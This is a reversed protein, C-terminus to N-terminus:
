AGRRIRAFRLFWVPTTALGFVIAGAILGSLVPMEFPAWPAAGFAIGPGSKPASTLPGRRDPPAAYGGHMSDTTEVLYRGASPVDIRGFPEHGRCKSKSEYLWTPVSTVPLSVLEGSMAVIRVAMGDPASQLTPNKSHNTGDRCSRVDSSHDLMVQGAPLVLVQRGPVAVVGYRDHDHPIGGYTYVSYGLLLALLAGVVLILASWGWHVRVSESM